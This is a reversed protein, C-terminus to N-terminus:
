HPPSLSQGFASLGHGNLILTGPWIFKHHLISAHLFSQGPNFLSFSRFRLVFSSSILARMDVNVASAHEAEEHSYQSLRRCIKM